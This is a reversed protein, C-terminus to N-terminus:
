EPLGANLWCKRIRDSDSENKYPLKKVWSKVSFNPDTKYVEKGALLAAENRDLSSYAASLGVLAPQNMPELDIAKKFEAIALEYQGMM